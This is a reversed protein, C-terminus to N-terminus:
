CDHRVVRWTWSNGPEITGNEADPQRRQEAIPRVFDGGGDQGREERGQAGGGHPQAGDFADGVAQGAEGLHRGADKPSAVAAHCM